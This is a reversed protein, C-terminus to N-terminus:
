SLINTRHLDSKSFSELFALADFDSDSVFNPIFITKLFINSGYKEERCHDIFVIRLNEPIRFM